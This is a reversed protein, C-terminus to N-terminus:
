DSEGPFHSFLRGTIPLHQLMEKWLPLRERKPIVGILSPEMESVVRARPTTQVVAGSTMITVYYDSVTCNIPKKRMKIEM